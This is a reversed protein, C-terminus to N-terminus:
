SPLPARTRGPRGYGRAEMAEAVNLGRELSGALLPSLLRMPSLEVGRGRLSTRLDHVGPNMSAETFLDPGSEPDDVSGSFAVLTALEYGKAAIYRDFELKYRVAEKRGATTEEYQRTQVISSHLYLNHPMVTAGLISIAIYLM